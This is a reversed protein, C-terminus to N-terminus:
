GCINEQSEVEKAFYLIPPFIYNSSFQLYYYKM